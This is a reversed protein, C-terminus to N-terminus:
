HKVLITFVEEGISQNARPFLIYENGGAIYKKGGDIAFVEGEKLQDFNSYESTFNFDDTRKIAIQKVSYITPKATHKTRKYQILGFHSLFLKIAEEALSVYKEPYYNSGCELCIGIKNMRAMYADTGGVCHSSYGTIIADVGLKKALSIGQKETIIFPKDENSNYGHIDLLADCNGLLTMLERARKDEYTQGDNEAYFCRNLNRETFRKKQEIALPNAFVFHVTGSTIKITNILSKLAIIGAAENGHVGAFVAVEKGFANSSLTYVSRMSGIIAM